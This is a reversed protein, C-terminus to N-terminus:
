IMILLYEGSQDAWVFLYLILGFILTIKFFVAEVEMALVMGETVETVPM